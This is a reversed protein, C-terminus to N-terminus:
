FIDTDLKWWRHGNDGISKENLLKPDTADSVDWLTTKGQVLIYLYGRHFTVM